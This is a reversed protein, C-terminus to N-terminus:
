RAVVPLYHVDCPGLRIQHGYAWQSTNFDDTMVNMNGCPVLAQATVVVYYPNPRPYDHRFWGDEDTVVVFSESTMNVGDVQWSWTVRVPVGALAVSYDCPYTPHNWGDPGECVTGFVRVFDVAVPDGIGQADVTRWAVLLLFVALLIATLIEQKTYESM